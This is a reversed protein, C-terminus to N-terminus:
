VLHAAVKRAQHIPRKGFIGNCFPTHGGTEHSVVTNLPHTQATPYFGCSESDEEVRVPTSVPMMRSPHRHFLDMSIDDRKQLRSVASGATPRLRPDGKGKKRTRRGQEKEEGDHSHTHTLTHPTAALLQQRPARFSGNRSPWTKVARSGQGPTLIDPCFCSDSRRVTVEDLPRQSRMKFGEYDITATPM